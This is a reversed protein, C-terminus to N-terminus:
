ILGDVRSQSVYVSVDPGGDPNAMLLTNSARVYKKAHNKNVLYKKHVRLMFPIDTFLREYFGINKSVFIKKPQGFAYVLCTNRDGEIYVLEDLKVFAIEDQNRFAIRSPHSANDHQSQLIEQMLAYTQKVHKLYHREQAEMVARVLKDKDVPKLLYASASFEFARVAYQNYATVFVLAFNIDELAELVQFGDKGPMEVDLFVLEPQQQRILELGQEGDAAEGILAITPCHEKLLQKLVDRAEKEDDIIVARM